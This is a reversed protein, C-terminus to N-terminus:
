TSSSSFHVLISECLLEKFRLRAPSNLPLLEEFPLGATATFIKMSWFIFHYLEKVTCNPFKNM